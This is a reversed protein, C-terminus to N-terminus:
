RKLELILNVLKTVRDRLNLSRTISNFDPDKGLLADQRVWAIKNIVSKADYSAGSSSEIKGAKRIEDNLLDFQQSIEKMANATETKITKDFGDLDTHDASSVDNFADVQGQLFKMNKKTKKINEIRERITNLGDDEAGAEPNVIPEKDEFSGQEPTM